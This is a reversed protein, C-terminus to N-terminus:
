AISIVAPPAKNKKTLPKNELMSYTYDIVIISSYALSTFQFLTALIPTLLLLKDLVFYELKSHQHGNTSENSESTKSFPHAHVVLVGSQLRHVHMFLTNNFLLVGAITLLLLAFYKKLFLYIKFQM